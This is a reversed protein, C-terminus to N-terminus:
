GRHIGHIMANPFPHPHYEWGHALREGGPPPDNPTWNTHKSRFSLVATWKCKDPVHVPVAETTIRNWEWDEYQLDYERLVSKMAPYFKEPEQALYMHVHTLVDRPDDTNVWKFVWADIEHLTRIVALCLGTASWGLSEIISEKIEDYTGDSIM